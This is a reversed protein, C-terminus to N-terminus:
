LEDEEENFYGFGKHYDLDNKEAIQKVIDHRAKRGEEIDRMVILSLAIHIVPKLRIRIQEIEKILDKKKRGKGKLTRKIYKESM